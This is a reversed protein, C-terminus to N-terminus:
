SVQIYYAIYIGMDQCELTYGDGMRGLYHRILRLNCDIMERKAQQSDQVNRTQTAKYELERLTDGPEAKYKDARSVDIALQHSWHTSEVALMTVCTITPEYKM